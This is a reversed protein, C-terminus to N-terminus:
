QGNGLQLQRNKLANFLTQGNSHMVYPLFVESMEAQNAEVLALQAEVWDKVIRWAIRECQSVDRAATMKKEKLLARKVGDTNCPLRFDLPMGELNLGFTVAKAKGNEYDVSVRTAGKLGLISQIQSVTKASDVKTTYNLIPM